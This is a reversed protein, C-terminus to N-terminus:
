TPSIAYKNMRALFYTFLAGYDTIGDKALLEVEFLAILGEQFYRISLAKAQKKRKALLSPWLSLSSLLSPNKQAACLRIGLRLDKRIAAIFPFFLSEEIKEWSTFHKNWLFKDVYEWLAFDRPSIIQLDDQTVQKKNGVYAFLKECEQVLLSFDKKAKEVILMKVQPSIEKGMQKAKAEVYQAMREEKKGSLELLVGEKEVFQIIKQWGQKSPASLVLISSSLHAVLEQLKPADTKELGNPFDAAIVTREEFFSPSHSEHLLSDLSIEHFVRASECLMKASRQLIKKREFSDESFILYITSLHDPFSARIQKFFSTASLYKM